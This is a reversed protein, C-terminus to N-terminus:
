ALCFVVNRLLHPTLPSFYIWFIDGRTPRDVVQDLGFDNVIEILQRCLGPKPCKPLISQTSWDIHSLNFDGALWVQPGKTMDIKSLSQQMLDLIDAGSDPPRCFAGILISKTNALELHVWLIECDEDLDARHAVIIDNKIAIFIGGHSLGKSSPPRDKRIVSYDPPFIESNSIGSSLWSETGILVDPKQTDLCIALEAVKNKVSQFNLVMVKMQGSKRVNLLKPKHSWTKKKEGTIMSDQHAKHISSSAAVPSALGLDDSSLSALTSFSNSLFTSRSSFLSSAFNPMGCDCCIWSVNNDELAHYMNSNMSMCEAHYWLDCNDCQVAYNSWNVEDQCIKCPFDPGPNTETDGAQIIYLLFLYVLIKKRVNASTHDKFKALLLRLNAPFFSFIVLIKSPNSHYWIFSGSFVEWHEDTIKSLTINQIPGSVIVNDFLDTIYKEYSKKLSGTVSVHTIKHERNNSSEQHSNMLSVVPSVSTVSHGQEDIVVYDHDHFKCRVCNIYNQAVDTLYSKHSDKEQKNECKYSDKIYDILAM